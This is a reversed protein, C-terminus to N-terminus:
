SINRPDLGSARDMESVAFRLAGIDAAFDSSDSKAAASQVLIIALEIEAIKDENYFLDALAKKSNFYELLEDARAKSKAFDGRNYLTEIENVGAHMSKAVRDIIISQFISIGLIFVLILAAAIMRKM